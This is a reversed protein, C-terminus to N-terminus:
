NGNCRLQQHLPVVDGNRNVFLECTKKESFRVFRVFSLTLNQLPSRLIFTCFYQM